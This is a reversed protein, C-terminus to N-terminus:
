GHHYWPETDRTLHCREKMMELCEERVEDTNCSKLVPIPPLAIAPSSWNRRSREHVRQRPPQPIKLPQHAAGAPEARVIKALIVASKYLEELITSGWSRHVDPTQKEQKMVRSYEEVSAEVMEGVVLSLTPVTKVSEAVHEAM